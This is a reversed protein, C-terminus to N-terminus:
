RELVVCGNDDLFLRWESGLVAQLYEWRSLLKFKFSKLSNCENVFSIVDDITFTCEPFRLEELSSFGEALQQMGIATGKDSCTLKSIPFYGNKVFDIVNQDFADITLEQLESFIMAVKSLVLGDVVVQNIKFTKVTDFHIDDPKFYANTVQFRGITTLSKLRPFESVIRYFAMDFDFNNIQLSQLQKNMQLCTTLNVLKEDVAVHIELHQLTPLHAAICDTNRLEGLKLIRMNPFCRKIETWNVSDSLIEVSEVKPCPQLLGLTRGYCSFETLFPACNQNIYDALMVLEEDLFESGIRLKSLSEGFFCVVELCTKHERIHIEDSTEKTRQISLSSGLCMLHKSYKSQFAIRAAIEFSLGWKWSSEVLILLECFKMEKFAMALSDLDAQQMLALDFPHIFFSSCFTWYKEENVFLGTLKEVSCHKSVLAM